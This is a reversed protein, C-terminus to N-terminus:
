MREADAAFLGLTRLPGSVSQRVQARMVDENWCTLKAGPRLLPRVLRRLPLVTEYFTHESDGRWIDFFVAHYTPRAPAQRLFQFLDKEPLHTRADGVYPAVMPVVEPSQEVVDVRSVTERQTVGPVVLGIGLGGILVRGRFGRISARQQYQEIPRDSTWVGDD